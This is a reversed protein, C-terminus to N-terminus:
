KVKLMRRCHAAPLAELDDVHTSYKNGDGGDDNHYYRQKKIIAELKKTKAQCERLDRVDPRSQLELKLLEIDNEYVKAKNKAERLQREYTQFCSHFLFGCRKHIDNPEASTCRSSFHM